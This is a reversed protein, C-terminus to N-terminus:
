LLKLGDLVVLPVSHFLLLFFVATIIFVVAPHLSGMHLFVALSLFIVNRSFLLSSAYCVAATDGVSNCQCPKYTGGSSLAACVVVGGLVHVNLPAHVCVQICVRVCILPFTSRESKLIEVDFCKVM